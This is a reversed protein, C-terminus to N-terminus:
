CIFLIVGPGFLRRHRGSVLLCWNQVHPVRGEVMLLVCWDFTQNVCRESVPTLCWSLHNTEWKRAAALRITLYILVGSRKDALLATFLINYKLGYKIESSWWQHKLVSFVVFLHLLTLFCLYIIEIQWGLDVKHQQLFMLRGEIQHPHIKWIESDTEPHHHYLRPTSGKRLCHCGWGKQSKEPECSQM